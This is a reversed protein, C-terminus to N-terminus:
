YIQFLSRLFLSFVYAEIQARRQRAFEEDRDDQSVNNLQQAIQQAFEWDRISSDTM